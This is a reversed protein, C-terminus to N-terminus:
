EPTANLRYLAELLVPKEKAFAGFWKGYIEDIQGTRYLHSLVRDAILRFDADNRRVALAFPEFSFMERSIVFGDRDPASLVLGILVVQDSSFADATGERLAQLGQAATNVPVVRADTLSRALHAKLVEITTTGSVVAARKGQLDAMGVIGADRRAMISAGTVFTLQTFDVLAARSHTKTTSGCLIDYKNEALATFREEATVPLYEVRLNPKNLQFKVANAIRQCVDVSYGAPKGEKDSFSMPPEATRFGIRMTGTEEIQALTDAQAAYGLPAVLALVALVTLVRIM